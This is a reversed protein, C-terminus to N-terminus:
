KKFPLKNNLWKEKFENWLKESYEVDSTIYKYKIMTNKRDIKVKEFFELIRNYVKENM